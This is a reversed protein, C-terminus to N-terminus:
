AARRLSALWIPAWLQPRRNCEPRPMHENDFVIISLNPLNGLRSRCIALEDLAIRIRNSVEYLRRNVENEYRVRKM